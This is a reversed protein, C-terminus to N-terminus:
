FLELKGFLPRFNEMEAFIWVDLIHDVKELWTTLPPRNIEIRWATELMPNSQQGISNIPKRDYILPKM